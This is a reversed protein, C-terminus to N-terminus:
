DVCITQPPETLLVPGRARTGHDIIRNCGYVTAHDSCRGRFYGSPPSGPVIIEREPDPAAICLGQCDNGDLCVKGGDTTRCNCSETEALGHRAWDGNCSKCTEANQVPPYTHCSALALLALFVALAHPVRRM